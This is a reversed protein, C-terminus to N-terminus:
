SGLSSIDVSLYKLTETNNNLDSLRFILKDPTLYCSFNSEGTPSWPLTVICDKKSDYFTPSGGGGWVVFRGDTKPWGWYHGLSIFVPQWASNQYVGFASMMTSPYGKDNLTVTPVRSDKAMLSEYSSMTVFGFSALLDGSCVDKLYQADISVSNGAKYIGAVEATSTYPKGGNGFCYLEGQYVFPHWGQTVM